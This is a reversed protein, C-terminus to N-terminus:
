EFPAMKFDNAARIADDICRRLRDGRLPKSKPLKIGRVWKIVCVVCGAVNLGCVVKGYWPTNSLIEDVCSEFDPRDKCANYIPEWCFISGVCAVLCLAPILLTGEPDMGGPAFYARYLSMGDVYDIPDRLIFRGVETHYYRARFFYMGTELDLRRGTYLYEWDYSSTSRSGFSPSFVNVRGYADYAYREQVSGNEDMIAVISFRTDALAYHREDLTGDSNTDSDRLVLDDVFRIGWLYQKDADTSSGVREELVQSGASYFCM